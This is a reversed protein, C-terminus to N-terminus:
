PVGGLVHEVFILKNLIESSADKAVRQIVNPLFTMVVLIVVLVIVPVISQVVEHLRSSDSRTFLTKIVRFFYTGEVISFALILAIIIFNVLEKEAALSILLYFKSFFGFLPPLGAISVAGIVFAVSSVKMRYGFGALSEIDRSGAERILNGASLFMVAKSISHNLILFVAAAVLDVTGSSIAVFFLGTQGITSFALMRKLDTQFFASIEGYILTIIGILLMFPLVTTLGFATFVVRAIAFVATTTAIGSLMASIGSPASQHADPLWANLPFLAGEVALGTFILAFSITKEFMPLNELKLSLHAMNLTGTASYLLAVGILILMGALSGLVLYKFGAEISEKTREFAVLSFSSIALIEFAVFLNFLDSAAVVWTASLGLIIFLVHFKDELESSHSGANYLSVLFALVNVVCVIIFGMRDITISISYPPKVGATFAMVFNGELFAPLNLALIVLNLLFALTALYKVVGKKFSSIIVSVFAFALPLAILLVPNKFADSVM